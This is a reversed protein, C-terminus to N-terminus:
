FAVQLKKSADSRKRNLFLSSMTLLSSAMPCFGSSSVPKVFKVLYSDCDVAQLSDLYVLGDARHLGLPPLRSKSLRPRRQALATLSLRSTASVVPLVSAARGYSELLNWSSEQSGSKERPM